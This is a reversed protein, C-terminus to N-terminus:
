CGNLLLVSKNELLPTPLVKDVAPVHTQYFFHQSLEFIDAKLYVCKLTQQMLCTLVVTESVGRQGAYQPYKDSFFFFYM